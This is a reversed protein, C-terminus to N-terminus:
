KSKFKIIETKFLQFAKKGKEMLEISPSQQNIENLFLEIKDVTLNPEHKMLKKELLYGDVDLLEDQYVSITPIGLIALERTMSGGAGIFITCDIAISDFDMPKEPVNVKDFKDQNYHMYQQNDRTLVYIKYKHQLSVLIDDLFNEKGKYYQATQPEPRIFIKITKDNNEKRKQQIREGKSWLYIGEKVGPYQTIKKASVGSKAIKEIALNEPILITSAFIFAPKNGMAHENDNTYISPIGLLKAVIPSHFSSQSIALDPKLPALFKRLQLVRIPYGFIKKYFNKGYHEGIVTHKLGRQDLLQVTNALPRSTIIIEHGDSELERILDHFM